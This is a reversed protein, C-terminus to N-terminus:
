RIPTQPAERGKPPSTQAAPTRGFGLQTKLEGNIKEIQQTWHNLEFAYKPDNHSDVVLSM